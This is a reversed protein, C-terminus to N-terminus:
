RVHYGVAEDLADHPLPKTSEPGRYAQLAKVIEALEDPFAPRDKDCTLCEEDELLQQLTRPYKGFSVKGERRDFRFREFLAYVPQAGISHVKRDEDLSEYVWHKFEARLTTGNVLM